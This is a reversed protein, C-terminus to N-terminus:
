VEEDEDYFFGAEGRNDNDSGELELGDLEESEVVEQAENGQATVETRSPEGTALMDEFKKQATALTTGERPTFSWLCRAHFLGDLPVGELMELRYSNLLHETVRHPTSWMPTLKRETSLTLAIKNQYVQVLQGTKFEIAGAKSAKVRRNFMTKRQVAHHVAEAYGDLQQQVAYTMHKDIDAPLLFSSSIELPTKSTNVVLGLLIEKPSFKLAPLIRWNLIHIAKDFHDLWMTPLKDWTTSQWGDEGVELACLRALVYLFLKNTGKVLRNVWLSYAAVMHLKTGWHECNETVERNKFHKGGDAMFTEPPAFNHFIDDLSRNTTVATGHTKFKYGWVHQSCTDLYIGATHYSGKGVPLSLYNGVLLEFPHHRTILQLLSHLHTGRFNKCWTCDLIAKVISEDFKPSHYWDLLAMKMVDRHWHGGQEHELKALTIAEAWSVCERRARARTGSGGRVFWLKGEDIV